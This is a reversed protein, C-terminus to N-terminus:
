RRGGTNGRGIVSVVPREYSILSEVAACWAANYTAFWLGSKHDWEAPDVGWARCLADRGVQALRDVAPGADRGCRIRTCQELREVLPRRDEQYDAEADRTAALELCTV